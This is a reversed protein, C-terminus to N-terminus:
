RIIWIVYGGVATQCAVILWVVNVFSSKRRKHRFVQMALLAGPTGGLASLLWLRREPIRWEGKAAANKDVGFAVFTVFNIIALYAFFYAM